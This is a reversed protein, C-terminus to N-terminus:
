QFWCSLVFAVSKPGHITVPSLYWWSASPYKQYSPRPSSMSLTPPM